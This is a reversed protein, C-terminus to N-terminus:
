FKGSSAMPLRVAPLTSRFFTEAPEPRAYLYGQYCDCDRMRLFAAQEDTEVGEAVVSLHLHQAIALIAEVLATNRADHPIDRLFSKDIKLEDVPMQSLYALSSYGTGFDDISLHIGLAKLESLIAITGRIDEIALGETVELTLWAPDAGTAALVAKVRTAFHPQRFQRPSINVALRLPQGAATMRALLRCIELLVWEGM